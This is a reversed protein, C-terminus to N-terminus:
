VSAGVLAKLWISRWPAVAGIDIAVSPEVEQAGDASGPALGDLAV